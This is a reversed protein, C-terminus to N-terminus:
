LSTNLFNTFFPLSVLRNFYLIEILKPISRKKSSNLLPPGSGSGFTQLNEVEEFSLVESANLSRKSFKGM